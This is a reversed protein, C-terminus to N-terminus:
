LLLNKGKYFVSYFPYAGLDTLKVTGIKEYDTKLVDSSIISGEYKFMMKLHYFWLWLFFIRLIITQFGGPVTRACGLSPTHSFIDQDKIKTVLSNSLKKLM